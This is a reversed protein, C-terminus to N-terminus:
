SRTKPNNQYKTAQVRLEMTEQIQKMCVFPKSASTHYQPYQNPSSKSNVTSKFPYIPQFEWVVQRAPLKPEM